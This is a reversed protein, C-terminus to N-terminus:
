APVLAPAALATAGVPLMPIATPITVRGAVIQHAADLLDPAVAICGGPLTPYPWSPTRGSLVLISACGARRAAELDTAHDGIMLAGDLSAGYEGVARFLLGPEPKRCGCHEDPRHPCVMVGDVWGGARRITALLRRHIDDLEAAGLEGRHVVAQNTVIVLQYGATTLLALADLAGPLLTLDDWCRVHDPRNVNIVGDRDVFITSM